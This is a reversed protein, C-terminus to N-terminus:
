RALTSRLARSWASCCRRWGPIARRPWPPQPQQRQLRHATRRSRRIAPVASLRSAPRSEWAVASSRPRSSRAASPCYAPAPWRASCCPASWAAAPRRPRPWISACSASPPVSPMPWCAPTMWAATAWPRRRPSPM